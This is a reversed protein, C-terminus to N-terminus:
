RDNIIKRWLRENEKYVLELRTNLEECAQQLEKNEEEIKQCEQMKEELLDIIQEFEKTSISMRQGHELRSRIDSLNIGDIMIQKKDTM